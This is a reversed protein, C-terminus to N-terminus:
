FEELPAFTQIFNTPSMVNFSGDEYKVVYDFEKCIRGEYLSECAVNNINTHIVCYGVATMHRQKNVELLAKGCFEQVALICETTYFFQLAEVYEPRRQFKGSRIPGSHNTDSHSTM